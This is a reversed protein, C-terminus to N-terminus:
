KKKLKKFGQWKGRGRSSKGTGSGSPGSAELDRQISHIAKHLDMANLSNQLIDSLEEQSCTALHDLSEGKRLLISLNKTNVGPLKAVLDQIASNFTDVDIETELDAGVSAAAAPDPQPQGQKMEEFLEATAYPSPSWVIRLKPFHLTLLQLKTTVDKSSVNKSVYYHGQLTFPKNQDFEILLMPKAYSRSMAVAQNYLRGSHLSGILDSVSKREVCIEPTLIYDGVHLTVPEIEIGRKHILSPLDSRFERMDVVVCSEKKPQTDPLGGKRTNLVTDSPKSMDRALLLNDDSRGDQGKSIVMTSKENILFEFAEKERRLSTLYSQEDVSGGYILFFIEVGVNPYKANFVELRRIATIDIDFLVVYQPRLNQLTKLLDTPDNNRKFTQIQIVPPVWTGPTGLITIENIEEFQSTPIGMSDNANPEDESVLRQSLLFCDRTEEEKENGEKDDEEEDIENKLASPEDVNRIEENTTTFKKMHPKNKFLKKDLNKLLVDSGVTMLEKIQEGTRKDQVLILILEMNDTKQKSRTNIEKIIEVLTEWKPCVEPLLEGSTQSYHRQEALMFLREAANSLCWGSCSLAYDRTKFRSILHHFTVSDYRILYSIVSSLSRIDCILQRTKASLQHWVPDLHYQLLKHFSRAIVNEVTVEDLDVTPNLAKLDKICMSILDLTAAQIEQMTQTMPVHLETVNQKFKGLSSKVTAHFRPWLYLNCVFLTKMIHQVQAFGRTFSQASSSFAKVFGVKNKQRFLRIAFAEQCSELISHARYVLFGTIKDIPIRNKLLDVVLIRSSLFLVGGELYVIERHQPTYENTIVKPLPTVEEKLLMDIFYQEEYSTTGIVIVLNGPDSYVKLLNQFVEEINLGKASVILGDEHLIDLFMQNEYELM